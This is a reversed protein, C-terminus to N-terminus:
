LAIIRREDDHEAATEHGPKTEDGVEVVVSGGDLRVRIREAPAGTEGRLARIARAIDAQTVSAPRRPM